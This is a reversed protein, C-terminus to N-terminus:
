LLGTSRVLPLTSSWGGVTSQRPSGSCSRTRHRCYSLCYQANSPAITQQTMRLAHVTGTAAKQTNLPRMAHLGTSHSKCRTTWWAECLAFERRPRQRCMRFCGNYLLQVYVSHVHDLVVVLGFAHLESGLWTHAHAEGARSSTVNPNSPVVIPGPTRDSSTACLAISFSTRATSPMAAQTVTLATLWSSTCTRTPTLVGRM